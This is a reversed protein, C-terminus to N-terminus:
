AGPEETRLEEIVALADCWGAAYGRDNAVKKDSAPWPPPPQLRSEAELLAERRADAVMREVERFLPGFNHACDFDPDLLAVVLATQESETLEV